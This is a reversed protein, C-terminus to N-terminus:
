VPPKVERPKGCDGGDGQQNGVACMRESRLSIRPKSLNTKVEKNLSRLGGQVGM